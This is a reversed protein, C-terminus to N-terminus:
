GFVFVFGFRDYFFLYSGCWIELNCSLKPRAGVEIGLITTVGSQEFAGGQIIIGAGVGFMVLVLARLM